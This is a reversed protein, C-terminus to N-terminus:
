GKRDTHHEGNERIYKELLRTIEDLDIPKAAHANMGCDLCRQVDEAFADASMAIIPVTRADPRGMARIARTAEYGNMVPMRIDMLIADFEGPDSAAFRDACIRGNEARELSLGLDSLLEEAIEWNLDNDEALLVRRGALATVAEPPAEAPAEEPLEGPACLSRLSYYLNSRFLPKAIGGSIGAAKAEDELDSWDAASVLLLPIGDGCSARIARATELGDMGPLRWDLLVVRYDRGQAHREQIMELATEGDLAWESRCGISKLTAAASECLLEDDDVVLVEWGPLEMDQLQTPAKELDLIVHFETGKGPESEVTITGGMADVIYKTIAMGLGSGEIKQVRQSDERTFSDFIKEQFEKSMGIGTDKVRLHVRVRSEGKPSPEEYCAAHISGGEPTFKIANGLLNLLIQNLRISDCYVHESPIDYIYVDFRQGKANVQPHVINVIGQMTEQLSVQEMHLSLKGSEIKSMDLIDNILGLLHRSSLDIKRLCGQVQQINDLNASAIATMGVIGNMPTRIDHSMNSLFESKARNAHEAARRAEELEKVHQQNLHIYWSFMALLAALILGCSMGAGWGWSRSLGNVTQDVRGYPMFLLLYWESYPLPTGYLHRRDGEITFESTYNKGNDMAKQLEVLYQEGSMGEVSDYRDRVRQFYTEDTIDSDRVIFRGERDIISYYILSDDADLSLTDSIYSVPLAAVLAVSEGGGAMPYAAPIGMLMLQDGQEDRGTTMQEEGAMLSQAFPDSADISIQSGYLMEFSGDGSCLALHDFGRARANYSLAVAASDRDKVGSPPVSDVLAGVQSLRLEIATGFHTAAQESMGSMYIAGLEGIAEAGRRNMRSALYSFVVVCLISICALSIVLFRTTRNKM